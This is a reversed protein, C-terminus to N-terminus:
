VSKAPGRGILPAKRKPRNAEEALKFDGVKECKYYPGKDCSSKDKKM